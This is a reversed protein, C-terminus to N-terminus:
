KPHKIAVPVNVVGLDTSGDHPVGLMDFLRPL